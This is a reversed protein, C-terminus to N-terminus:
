TRSKFNLTSHPRKMLDATYSTKLENFTGAFNWFGLSSVEGAPYSPPVYQKYHQTKQHIRHTDRRVAFAVLTLFINNFRDDLNIAVLESKFQHLLNIPFKWLVYIWFNFYASVAMYVLVWYTVFPLCISALILRIARVAPTADDDLRKLTKPINRSVKM